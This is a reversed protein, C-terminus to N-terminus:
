QEPEGFHNALKERQKDIEDRLTAVLRQSVENEHCYLAELLIDSVQPDQEDAWTDGLALGAKPTDYNSLIIAADIRGLKIVAALNASRLDIPTRLANTCREIIEDRPDPKDPNMDKAQEYNPQYLIM